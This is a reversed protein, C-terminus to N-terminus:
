WWWGAMVMGGLTKSIEEEMMKGREVPRESPETTTLM